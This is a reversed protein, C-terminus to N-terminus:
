TLTQRPFYKDELIPALGTVEPGYLSTKWNRFSNPSRKYSRRRVVSPTSEQGAPKAQAIELEGMLQNLEAVKAVLRDKVFGVDQIAQKTYDRAQEQRLHNNQARLTINESLLQARDAELIAVKIKIESNSRNKPSRM